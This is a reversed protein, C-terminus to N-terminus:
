FFDDLRKFKFEELFIQLFIKQETRVYHVSPFDRLYRDSYYILHEFGISVNNFLRFAIRPKILAIYSNGADGIYTYLWWYYSEYDIRWGVSLSMEEANGWNIGDQIIGSSKFKVVKDNKYYDAWGIGNILVELQSIEEPENKNNDVTGCGVSLVLSIILVFIKM